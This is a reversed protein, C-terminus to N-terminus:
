IGPNALRWQIRKGLWYLLGQLGTTRWQHFARKALPIPRRTPAPLCSATSPILSLNASDPPRAFEPLPHTRGAEILPLYESCIADWTLIPLGHWVLPAPLGKQLLYIEADSRQRRAQISSRRQKLEPLSRLFCMWAQVYAMVAAKRFTFLAATCRLLDELLYRILFRRLYKSSNLLSIFRLRGYAVRCLKQVSSTAGNPLKVPMGQGPIQGGFAHYVRAAPAARVIYGMLRARYCWESDEYYMPFAEDLPGVTHFAAAPILAAAFCASPVESWADFQGLDLHGLANDAGWSFAGVHNGLGNLFAPAWLLRLKATAAACAPGRQAALLLRAIAGPELIVDPNLLCYYDGSAAQIGLNLARALPQPQEQCIIQVQPYHERVWEASGDQSANDVFIIEGPPCTQAQLSALCSVLWSRSNYGVLIASVRRAGDASEAVPQSPPTPANGPDLPLPTPEIPSGLPDEGRHNRALLGAEALCALAARLEGPDGALFPLALVEDLSRGDASQWIALIDSDIAM